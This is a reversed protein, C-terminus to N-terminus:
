KKVEIKYDAKPNLKYSLDSNSRLLGLHVLHICANEFDRSDMNKPLSPMTYFPDFKKKPNKDLYNLIIQEPLDTKPYGWNLGDSTYVRTVKM